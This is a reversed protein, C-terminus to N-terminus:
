PASATPPVKNPRSADIRNARTIDAFARKLDGMRYLVIGRDVYADSFSPDLDIALDFFIRALYLDGSRYALIGRERYYRADEVGFDRATPVHAIAPASETKGALTAADSTAAERFAGPNATNPAGVDELKDRLGARSVIDSLETSIAALERRSVETVQASVLSAKFMFGSILYIGIFAVSLITIAIADPAIKRITSLSIGRERESGQQQLAIALLRDYTARQREDGLIANARVVQRFRQSADPDGPNNDPHNAKAAKRFAARLREADDDPLAGLLEYLTKM